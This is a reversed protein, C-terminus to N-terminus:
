GYRFRISTSVGRLHLMSEKCWIKMPLSIPRLLPCLPARPLTRQPFINPCQKFHLISLSPFFVQHAYFPRIIMYTYILFSLPLLTFWALIHCRLSHCLAHSVVVHTYSMLALFCIEVPMISASPTKHIHATMFSPHLLFFLFM